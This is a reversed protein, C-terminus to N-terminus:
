GFLLHEYNRAGHLIHIVEVIENNIRYFILYNQYAKRRINYEEYRPVLPFALPMNALAACSDLLEEVFSIARKPSDQRIFDGIEQLDAKATQTIVVKM